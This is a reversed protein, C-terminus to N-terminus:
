SKAPESRAISTTEGDCERGGRGGTRDEGLARNDAGILGGGGGYLGLLNAFLPVLSAVTFM